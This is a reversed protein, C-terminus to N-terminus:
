DAVRRRSRPPEDKEEDSEECDTEDSDKGDVVKVTDEAEEEVIHESPPFNGGQTYQLVSTRM